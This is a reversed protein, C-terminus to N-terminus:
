FTLPEGVPVAPVNFADQGVRLQGAVAIVPGAILLQQAPDLASHDIDHHGLVDLPQGAVPLVAGLQFLEAGKM